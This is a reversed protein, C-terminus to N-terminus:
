SDLCKEKQKYLIDNTKSLSTRISIKNIISNYYDLGCLNEILTKLNDDKKFLSIQFYPYFYSNLKILHHINKVKGHNEKLILNYENPTMKIISGSALDVASSTTSSTTFVGNFLVGKNFKTTLEYEQDIYGSKKITIKSKNGMAMHFSKVLEIKIPTNGLLRGDLYIEANSPTSYIQIYEISGETLTMCSKLFLFLPIYYFKKYKLIREFYFKYFKLM